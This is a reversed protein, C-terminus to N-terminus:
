QVNMCEEVKELAMRQVTSLSGSVDVSIVDLEASDPEELAKFQSHVMDDRFFHGQRSKVRKLLLAEDARLYIFRVIVDDAERGAIRIVDRYKRKLCSCTVVCGDAGGQLEEVAKNRLTELWEWRDEDTLAVGDSMKKVNAPPHYDDGEIYTLNLCKSIYEAVSSKGCGAPGTIIWIHRLKESCSHVNGMIRHSSSSTTTTQVFTEMQTENFSLM